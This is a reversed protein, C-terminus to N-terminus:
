PESQYQKLKTDDESFKIRSLGQKSVEHTGEISPKTRTLTTNQTVKSDATIYPRRHSRGTIRVGISMSTHAEGYVKVNTGFSTLLGGVVRTDTARSSTAQGVLRVDQSLSSTAQGTLRTDFAANSSIQGTVRADTALNSVAQATVRVDQATNSLLQGTVRIDKTVNSTTQATVRVDQATSTPIGSAVLRVDYAATSLLGGIIRTDYAQASTTQGVTRIDQATNSLIQGTVRIDQAVSSTTQGILRVDNAQSSSLQGTVRTAYSTNSTATGIVRTDYASSSTLSGTVRTDYAANSTSQGTLRVDQASSSTAQGTLRTAYSTNSTSTGTVRVDYAQSSVAQATLRVDYAVNSTANIGTVRADQASSSTAQGTLRVDRTVNSTNQGTLRIDQSLSSPQESNLIITWFQCAVASDTTQTPAITTPLPLPVIYNVVKTTNGDFGVFGTLSALDYGIPSSLNTNVSGAYSQVGIEVWMSGNKTSTVSAPSHTLVDSSDAAYAWTEIPTSRNVGTFVAAYGYAISSGGTFTFTVPSSESGSSFKWYIASTSTADLSISQQDLKTWGSPTSIGTINNHAQITVLLLDGANNSPLTVDVSAGGSNPSNGSASLSIGNGVRVVRSTNSIPNGSVRIDQVRNSTSQATLRVDQAQSSVIQGTVRADEALSSLSAAGTVRVDQAQSSPLSYTLYMSYAHTTTGDPTGYPSSPNGTSVYAVAKYQELGAAGADYYLYVKDCNPGLWWGIWYTGAALPVSSGFTFDYWAATTATSPVTVEPTIAVFSGPLGSSDNWIVARLSSNATGASRQYSTFKSVNITAGSVVIKNVAYYGPAATASSAGIASKGIIM